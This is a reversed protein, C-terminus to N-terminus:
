LLSKWLKIYQARIKDWTYKKAEERGAKGDKVAVTPSEKYLNIRGALGNVDCVYFPLGGDGVIDVAGAGQSCVVPRSHAMAELVELGFGESNHVVFPACYCHDGEVELNYVEGQYAIRSVETVPMYYYNDDIYTRYGRTGQKSRPSFGLVKRAFRLSENGNCHITYELHSASYQLKPMFGLRVLAAFLQYALQKSVTSYSTGRGGSDIKWVTGDGRWAGQILPILQEDPLLLAWIPLTKNHAGRGFHKVLFRSLLVSEVWVVVSNKGDTKTTRSALGLREQLFSQVAHVYEEEDSHFCFALAGARSAACGESVYYGFFRLADADLVLRDPLPKTRNTNSCVIKKPLHVHERPVVTKIRPFLLVDGKEVQGARVWEPNNQSVDEKLSRLAGSHGDHPVAGYNIWGNVAYENLGLRRAIKRAGIGETSRIYMAKAYVTQRDQFMNSRQELGRKIALVRHGPTMVVSESFGTAKVSVMEGIYSRRLPKVVRRYVGRNTLVLDNEILENVPVFGRKCYVPSGPLLCVSPQIYLSISNYFDSVNEVWGKLQITGGGYQRILSQVFPSTSDQGALVLTANNYNLKRWAQLLYILGKDPGVAGLYGAVFGTPPSTTQEPLECGHPIVAINKCGYSRMCSESHRSPCIVVDAALYGGVYKKWLEPDTLHPYDFPLGLKEHERKSLSIDHAAATYTVKCGLKKLKSITFSFTGSYFHAIRPNGLSHHYLQQDWKWPDSTTHVSPENEIRERGYVECPGLTKMAESEHHTVIAGGGPGGIHDATVYLFTM